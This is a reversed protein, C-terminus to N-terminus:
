FLGPLYLVAMFLVYLSLAGLTDQMLESRKRAFLPAPHNQMIHRRGTARKNENEARMTLFM